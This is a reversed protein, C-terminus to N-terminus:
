QNNNINNTSLSVASVLHCQKFKLKWDRTESQQKQYMTGTAKNKRLSPALPDTEPYERSIENLHIRRTM